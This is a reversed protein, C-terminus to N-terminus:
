DVGYRNQAAPMFLLGQGKEGCGAAKKRRSVEALIKKGDVARKEQYDKWIDLDETLWYGEVISAVIMSGEKRLHDVIARVHRRQSERSGSM